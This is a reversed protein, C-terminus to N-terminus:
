EKDLLEKMAKAMREGNERQAKSNFHLSDGVHGLKSAESYAAHGILAVAEQISQNVQKHEPSHLFDGLGGIVIPLNPLGLDKRFSQMLEVLRAKYLPADKANSDSEGQQWLIGKLTGDKMAVRAKRLAEEYLGRQGGPVWYSIKTGGVAAPILGINVNNKNEAMIKGFVFGPGVGSNAKDYHLPEKATSWEDRANLVYVRPHGVTDIAGVKGRGAMNSQGALLYLEMPNKITSKTVGSGFFFLLVFGIALTAYKKLFTIM